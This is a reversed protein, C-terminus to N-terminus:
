EGGWEEISAYISKVVSESGRIKFDTTLFGVKQEDYEIDAGNFKCRKLFDRVQRAFLSNVQLRATAITKEM